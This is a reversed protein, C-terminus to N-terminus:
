DWFFGGERGTENRSKINYCPSLRITEFSVYTKFTQSSFKKKM